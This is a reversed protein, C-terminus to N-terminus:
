QLENFKRVWYPDTIRPQMIERDGIFRIWHYADASETIRDRLVEHNGINFAWHFAWYSDTIHNLMLAFDGVRWAWHFAWASPINDVTHLRPLLKGRFLNAIDMVNHWPYRKRLATHLEPYDLGQILRLGFERSENDIRHQEDIM